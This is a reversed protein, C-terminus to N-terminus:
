ERGEMGLGPIQQMDCGVDSRGKIFIIRGERLLYTSDWDGLELTLSEPQIRNCMTSRTAGQLERGQQKKEAISTVSAYFGTWDPRVIM